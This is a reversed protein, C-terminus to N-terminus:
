AVILWCRRGGSAPPGGVPRTLNKTLLFRCPRCLQWSSIGL